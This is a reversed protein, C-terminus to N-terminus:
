LRLLQKFIQKKFNFIKIYDSFFVKNIKEGSANQLDIVM